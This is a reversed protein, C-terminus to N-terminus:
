ATRNRKEFLTPVLKFALYALGIWMVAKTLGEALTDVGPPKQLGAAEKICADITAKDGKKQAEECLDRMLRNNLSLSKSLYLYGIVIAAVAVVAVVVAWVVTAGTVPAIQIFGLGAAAPPPPPVFLKALYGDEEMKVISGFMALRQEADEQAWRETIRGSAVSSAIAGSMWPGLGWAAQTFGALVFAQAKDAGFALRVAEPMSEASPNSLLAELEKRNREEWVGIDRMVQEASDVDFAFGPVYKQLVAMASGRGTLLQEVYSTGLFRPLSVRKLALEALSPM